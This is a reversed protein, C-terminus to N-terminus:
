PRWRRGLEPLNIIAHRGAGLLATQRVGAGAAVCAAPRQGGLAGACGGAQRRDGHGRGARRRGAGGGGRVPLREGPNGIRFVDVWLTYSGAPTSPPIPLDLPQGSLSEGAAWATTPRGDGGLAPSEDQSIVIGDAGRLVARAGYEGTIPGVAEWHPVLTATEGAAFAARDLDVAALFLNDEFDVGLALRSGSGVTIQVTAGYPMRQGPGPAIQVVRGSTSGWQYRPSGPVLGARTIADAVTQYDGEAEPVTTIGEASVLLNVVTGAAVTEGGAPIHRIVRGVEVTADPVDETTVGLGEAELRRTAEDATLRAVDPVLVMRAPPETAMATAAPRAGGPAGPPADAPAAGLRDAVVSWLPILMALAVLAVFGLM